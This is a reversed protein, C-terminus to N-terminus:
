KGIYNQKSEFWSRLWKVKGIAYFNICDDKDVSVEIIYADEPGPCCTDPNVAVIPGDSGLFSWSYKGGHAKVAAILEDIIHQRISKFTDYYDTHKM